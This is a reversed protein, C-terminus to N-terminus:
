VFLVLLIIATDAAVHAAFPALMGRSFHRLIGLCISWAFVMLVGILGGPFGHIHWIAFVLAQSLVVFWANVFMASFGDFLLARALFEQFGSNLAAFAVGYLVLWTAPLDPVLARLADIDETASLAWFLLALASAAVVSVFVWTTRRDFTGFSLWRMAQKLRPQVLVIALYVAMPPVLYTHPIRIAETLPVVIPSMVANIVFFLAPAFLRTNSNALYWGPAILACAAALKYPTPWRLYPMALSVTVILLFVAPEIASVDEQRSSSTSANM